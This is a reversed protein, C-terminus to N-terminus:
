NRRLRCRGAQPRRLRDQGPEQAQVWCRQAAGAPGRASQNTRVSGPCGGLGTAHCSDDTTSAPCQDDHHQLDGDPGARSGPYAGDLDHDGTAPHDDDPAGIDHDPEDNHDHVPEAGSVFDHDNSPDDDGDDGRGTNSRVDADNNDGRVASTSDVDAGHVDTCRPVDDAGHVGTAQRVDDAGHVGTGQHGDYDDDLNDVASADDHGATGRHYSDDDGNGSPYDDVHHLQDNTANDHKYPQHAPSPHRVPADDLDHVVHAAWARVAHAVFHPDRARDHDDYDLHGRARDHNDGGATWDNRDDDDDDDDNNNNDDGGGGGNDDHLVLDRAPGDDHDHVLQQQYHPGDDDGGRQDSSDAGAHRGRRPQGAGGGPHPVGGPTRHM